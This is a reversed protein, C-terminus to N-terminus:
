NEIESFAAIHATHIHSSHFHKFVEVGMSDEESALDSKNIDLIKLIKKEKEM